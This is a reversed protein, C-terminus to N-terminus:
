PAGMSPSGGVRSWPGSPAMRPIVLTVTTGEGPRSSLTVTGDWGRVIGLVVALGLGSGAGIPKTTFFPEFAHALTAEDMGCGQDSVALRVVPGPALGAAAAATAELEVADLTLRVEGARDMADAANGVLNVLIQSLQAENARVWLPGATQGEAVVLRLTPPVSCRVFAVARALAATLELPQNVASERHTFALFNRVIQRAQYGSAQMPTILARLEAAQPDASDPPVLDLAMESLAIVPQLLNNIEHAMGSAVKGLSEMMAQRRAAEAQLRERTLDLLTIVTLPAAVSEGADLMAARAQLIRREGHGDTVAWDAGEAAEPPLAFPRGLTRAEDDGFLELWGRNVSVIRGGDDLLAMALPVSRYVAAMLREQERIRRLTEQRVQERRWALGFGMLVEALPAAVRGSVDKLPTEPFEAVLANLAAEFVEAINEIPTDARVARRGLDAAEALRDEGGEAIYGKLILAFATKLDEDRAAPTAPAPPRSPM